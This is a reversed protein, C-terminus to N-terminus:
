IKDRVETFLIFDKSYYDSIFDEVDQSIFGDIKEPKSQNYIALKLIPKIFEPAPIRGGFMGRAKLVFFGIYKNKYYYTRHLKQNFADSIGFLDNVCVEISNHNDIHILRNVFQRGSFHTYDIQKQFHVFNYPLINPAHSLVDCIRRAWDNVESVTLHTINQSKYMRLYQAVSSWFRSRPDRVIAFTNYVKLKEFVEPFLDKLLELPMHTIDVKDGNSADIVRNWNESDKSLLLKKRITTGGCKPIHIFAAKRLESIIM